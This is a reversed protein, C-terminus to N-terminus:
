KILYIRRGKEMKKGLIEQIEYEDDPEIEVQAMKASRPAPELLFVHFVPHIKMRRPFELEYNVEGVM